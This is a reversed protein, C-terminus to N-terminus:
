RRSPDIALSGTAFKEALFRGHAVLADADQQLVAVYVEDMKAALLDLQNCLIMLSTQGRHVPRRDAFDRPLRLYAHVAEPLYSTATSVVTHATSSGPGLNTLRPLIQHVIGAVRDVRASVEDPLKGEARAVRMEAEFSALLEAPGPPAPPAPPKHRPVALYAAVAAVAAAALGVPPIVGFAALAGGAAALVGGAAVKRGDPRVVDRM